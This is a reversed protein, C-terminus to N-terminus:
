LFNAEVPLKTEQIHWFEKPSKPEVNLAKQALYHLQQEAIGLDVRLKTNEQATKNWLYNIGEVEKQAELKEETRTQLASELNKITERLDCVLKTDSELRRIKIFEKGLFYVEFLLVGVSIVFITMM